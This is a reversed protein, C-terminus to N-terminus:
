CKCERYNLRILILLILTPFSLDFMLWDISELDTIQSDRNKKIWVIQARVFTISLLASCVCIAADMCLTSVSRNLYFTRVLTFVALPVIPTHLIITLVHLYFIM